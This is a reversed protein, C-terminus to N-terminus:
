FLLYSLSLSSLSLLADVSNVFLDTRFIRFFTSFFAGLFDKFFFAKRVAIVSLSPMPPLLLKFFFSLIISDCSSRLSM